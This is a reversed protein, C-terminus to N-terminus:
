RQNAVNVDNVRVVHIIDLSKALLRILSRWFLVKAAVGLKFIKYTNRSHVWNSLNICSYTAIDVM